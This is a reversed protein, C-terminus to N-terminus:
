LITPATNSPNPWLFAGEQIFQYSTGFGDGQAVSAPSCGWWDIPNGARGRTGTTATHIGFLYPAYGSGQLEPQFTYLAIASNGGNDSETQLYVQANFGVSSVTTRIVGGRSSAAFGGHLASAATNGSSFAFGWLAVSVSAPTTVGSTFEEIGWIAAALVSSRYIAVRFGKADDRAWFHLIRDASATSNVITTASMVVQEDTATPQQNTTGALAFAGSPSFSIRCIDDSAGQFTVLIQEGLAGSLVFWAQSAGAVTARPTWSAASTIRVTHDSSNTPGTGGSCSWVHSYLTGAGSGATLFTYLEFAFNQMTDLVSVFTVRKGPTGATLLQKWTKAITPLPM